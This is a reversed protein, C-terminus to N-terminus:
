RGPALIRPGFAGPGLYRSRVYRSRVYRSRVYWYRAYRSRVDWSREPVKNAKKSKVANEGDNKEVREVTLNSPPVHEEDDSTMFGPMNSAAPKESVILINFRM